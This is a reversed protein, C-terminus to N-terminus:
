VFEFIGSFQPDDCWTLLSMVQGNIPSIESYIYLLCSYILKNTLLFINTEDNLIGVINWFMMLICHM